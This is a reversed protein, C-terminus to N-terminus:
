KNHSLIDHLSFVNYQHRYKNDTHVCSKSCKVNLNHDAVHKGWKQGDSPM